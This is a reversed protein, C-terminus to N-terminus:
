FLFGAQVKMLEHTFHVTFQLVESTLCVWQIGQTFVNSFFVAQNTKIFKMHAVHSIGHNQVLEKFSQELVAHLEDHCRVVTGIKKVWIAQM